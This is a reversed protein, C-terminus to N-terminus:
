LLEGGDSSEADKKALKLARDVAAWDVEGDLVRWLPTGLDAGESARQLVLALVHGAPSSPILYAGAAVAKAVRALAEGITPTVAAQELDIFFAREDYSSM